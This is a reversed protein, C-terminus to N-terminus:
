DRPSSFPVVSGVRAHLRPALRRECMLACRRPHSDCILWRLTLDTVLDQGECPWRLKTRVMALLSDVWPAAYCRMACAAHVPRSHFGRTLFRPSLLKSTRNM